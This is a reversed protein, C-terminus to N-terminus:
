NEEPAFLKNPDIKECDKVTALIALTRLYRDTFGEAQSIAGQFDQKSIQEFTRNLDFGPVSYSSFVGFGEGVIQQQVFSTFLNPNELKNAAHIAKSLTDISNFRDIKEFMFAVGLLVQAKEVTDPSKEATQYVETLIELTEFKTLPEKLKEDAINFYLVARHEIQPVKDAFKRADTLRKDKIAVKASQFYFFNVSKERVSKEKIKDLWPEIMKLEEETKAALILTVIPYDTLIGKSDAEELDKIREAFNKVSREQFDKNFDLGKRTQEDILATANQRARVLDGNLAPFDRSIIPAFENLVVLAYGAESITQGEFSYLTEPTLSNTRNLLLTLFQRQLNPNPTFNAPASTGSSFVNVQITKDRGFPFASLTLLRSISSLTQRSLLEAYIQEAIQPNKGYLQYLVSFWDGIIPYNMVRRFIALAAAQNSDFLLMGLRLSQSLEQEKQFADRKDKEKDEDYSKLVEETLKRAWEADRRAIARIVEFRYDPEASYYFKLTSTNVIGKEKFREQAIKFAEAYYKRASDSEKEWLYDAVRILINIRKDSETVSKSEIAQREVLQRAMQADCQKIEKKAVTQANADFISFTLIISFLLLTKKM